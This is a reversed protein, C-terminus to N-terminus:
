LEFDFEVSAAVFTFVIGKIKINKNSKMHKHHYIALFDLRIKTELYM